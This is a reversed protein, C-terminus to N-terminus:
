SASSVSGFTLGLLPSLRSPEPPVTFEPHSPTLRGTEVSGDKAEVRELVDTQIADLGRILIRAGLLSVNFGGANL